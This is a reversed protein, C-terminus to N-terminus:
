HKRSHCLFLTSIRTTWFSSSSKDRHPPWCYWDSWSACEFLINCMDLSQWITLTRNHMATLICIAHFVIKHSLCNLRFYSCKSANITETWLEKKNCLWIVYCSHIIQNFKKKSSSLWNSNKLVFIFLWLMGQVRDARSGPPVTERSELVPAKQQKDGEVSEENSRWYVTAITALCQM